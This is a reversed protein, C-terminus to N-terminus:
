QPFCQPAPGDKYIYGTLYAVDVINCVGNANVDAIWLPEPIPGNKYLYGLLATLDLINIEGNKNLDGPAHYRILRVRCCTPVPYSDFCSAGTVVFCQLLSFDAINGICDSNLDANISEPPPPGCNYLFSEFYFLDSVSRVSGDGNIDGNGYCDQLIDSAILNESHLYLPALWLAFISLLFGTKISKM